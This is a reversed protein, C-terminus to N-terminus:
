KEKASKNAIENKIASVDITEETDNITNNLNEIDRLRMDLDELSKKLSQYLNTKEIESNIKNINNSNSLYEIVQKNMEEETKNRIYVFSIIYFAGLMAVLIIVLNNYYSAYMGFLDKPSFLRNERILEDLTTNLSISSNIDGIILNLNQFDDIVQYYHVLAVVICILFGVTSGLLFESNCKKLIWNWIQKMTHKM